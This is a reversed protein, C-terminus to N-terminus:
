LLVERGAVTTREKEPQKRGLTLHLQGNRTHDPQHPRLEDGPRKAQIPLVFSVIEM